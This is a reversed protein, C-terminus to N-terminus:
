IGPSNFFWNLGLADIQAFSQKISQLSYGNRQASPWGWPPTTTTHYATGPLDRGMMIRVTTDEACFFWSLWGKGDSYVHIELYDFAITGVHEAQLFAFSASQEVSQLCETLSTDLINFYSIQPACSPTYGSTFLIFSGTSVFAVVLVLSGFLTYKLIKSVTRYLTRRILLWSIAAVFVVTMLILQVTSLHVTLSATCSYAAIFIFAWQWIPIKRKLLPRQKSPTQVPNIQRPLKPERPFWGKIRNELSKKVNM